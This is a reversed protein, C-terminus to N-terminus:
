GSVNWRFRDVGNAGADQAIFVFNMIGNHDM